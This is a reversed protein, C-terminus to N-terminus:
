FRKTNNYIEIGYKDIQVKLAPERIRYYDVVDFKYPMLTNENLETAIALNLDKKNLFIALDVDSGKQYNEMARSGFLVVKEIDPYKKLINIIDIFDSERLGYKENSM